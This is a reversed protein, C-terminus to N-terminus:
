YIEQEYHNIKIAFLQGSTTDHFHFENKGM